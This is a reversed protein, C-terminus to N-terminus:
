SLCVEKLVLVKILLQMRLHCLLDLVKQLAMQLVPLLVLQLAKLHVNPTDVRAKIIGSFVSKKSKFVSVSKSKLIGVICLTCIELLESTMGGADSTASFDIGQGNNIKISNAGVGEQVFANGDNGSTPNSGKSRLKADDGMWM